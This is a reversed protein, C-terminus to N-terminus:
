ILLQFQEDVIKIYKSINFLAIDYQNYKFLRDKDKQTISQCIDLSSIMNENNLSSHIYQWDNVDDNSVNFITKYHNKIDNFVITSIKNHKNMLFQKNHTQLPILYDVKLMFNMANIFHEYKLRSRAVHNPFTIPLTTPKMNTSYNYGLWSTYMNSAGKTRVWQIDILKSRSAAYVFKSENLKLNFPVFYLKAKGSLYKQETEDINCPKISLEKLDIGRITKDQFRKKLDNYTIIALTKADNELLEVFYNKFDSGTTMFKYKIGNMSIYQNHCKSKINIDSSNGIINDINYKMLLTQPPFVSNDSPSVSSFQSNQSCIREIPERIPMLYLFKDCLTPENFKGRGYMVNEREIHTINKHDSKIYWYQQNCNMNSPSFLKLKNTRSLSQLTARVAVGACKSLHIHFLIHKHKIRLKYHHEKFKIFYYLVMKYIGSKINFLECVCMIRRRLSIIQHYNTTNFIYINDTICSNFYANTQNLLINIHEKIMYNMINKCDIFPFYTNNKNKNKGIEILKSLDHNIISCYFVNYWLNDLEDYSSISTKNYYSTVCCSHNSRSEEVNMRQKFHNIEKFTHVYCQIASYTIVIAIALCAAVLPTNDNIPM